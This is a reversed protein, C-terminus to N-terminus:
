KYKLKYITYIKNSYISIYDDDNKLYEYLIDEKTVLLHTFNYKFLVNKYYISGAQMLIYEKMIDDKKNNKKVFVEARPDIYTPIGRFEVLGGDNYGTYLIINDLDQSEILYDITSNLSTYNINNKLKNKEWIITTLGISIIILGILIKRIFLTKKTLNRHKEPLNLNRLYFAVPFYGCIAFFVLGRVSSLALYGTGLTLLVYRLKFKSKYSIHIFVLILMSGIVLKGVFNNINAPNMESVSESIEPIGYSNFLYTMAKTGYPNIYGVIIMIIIVVFLTKKRYGHGRIIGFKIKFSDIIYPMLIVFLMPWIAAQFNILLISLFPLFYLYGRKNSWIFCELLYIEIIIILISFIYPREVIFPYLLSSICFTVTFAVFFHNESVKMCLKFAFHTILGYCLMVLIKLGFVGLNSYTVWFIVASLWQQMVFELGNHITFPEIYPFGNELVYRGHNLLFWIDNDLNGYLSLICPIYMIIKLLKRDKIEVDNRKALIEAM